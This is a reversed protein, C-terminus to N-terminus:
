TNDKDVQQESQMDSAVIRGEFEKKAFHIRRIADKDDKFRYLENIESPTYIVTSPYEARYKDLDNENRIVLVEEGDFVKSKYLVAELEKSELLKSEETVENCNLRDDTSNNNNNNNLNNNITSKYDRWSM